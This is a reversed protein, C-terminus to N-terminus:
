KQTKPVGLPRTNETRTTCQPAGLGAAKDASSPKWIDCRVGDPPGAIVQEDEYYANCSGLVPPLIVGHPVAPPKYFFVLTPKKCGYTKVLAFMLRPRDLPRSAALVAAVRRREVKSLTPVGPHGLSMAYYAGKTTSPGTEAVRSSDHLALRPILALALAAAVVTM